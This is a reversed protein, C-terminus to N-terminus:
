GSAPQILRARDVGSGLSEGAAGKYVRKGVEDFRALDGCRTVAAIRAWTAAFSSNSSSVGLLEVRTGAEGSQLAIRRDPGVIAANEHM